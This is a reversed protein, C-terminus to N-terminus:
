AWTRNSNPNLTYTCITPPVQGTRVPWVYGIPTNYDVYVAGDYFSVYWMRSPDEAFATSSWYYDYTLINYMVASYHVKIFPNVSSLSPMSVSRDVLSFLEQRNPLRWDSYGLYNATNLCKVYNFAAQFGMKDGVCSGATPTSADKTWVLNTLNDTVTGNSNDTFRPNSWVVGKQLAGDDGTAYSVTQGTVWIFSNGFAGFAGSRVPWVYYSHANPKIDNNVYGYTIDIYLANSTNIAYTTSSWYLSQINHFGNRGLWTQVNMAGANALSNLENINPLRWDNHNLYNITNLCAVYDLAGQWNLMGGTCSDVTPTGGDKAWVLGTLNDTVTQDSNITFRPNPWAVGVRLYGDDNAFYSTTQGTQPLSVTGAYAVSGLCMAGFVVILALTLWKRVGLTNHTQLYEMEKQNNCRQFM